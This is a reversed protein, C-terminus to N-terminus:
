RIRRLRSIAKSLDEEAKDRERELRDKEQIVRDVLYCILLSGVTLLFIMCAAANMGGVDCSLYGRAVCESCRAKGEAVLCTRKHKRCSSCALMTFGFREIFAVLRNKTLTKSSASDCVRKTVRGSM